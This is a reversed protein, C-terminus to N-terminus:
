HELYLHCGEVRHTKFEMGGKRTSFTKQLGRRFRSCPEHCEAHRQDTPMRDVDNFVWKKSKEKSRIPIARTISDRADITPLTSFRQSEIRRGLNNRRQIYQGHYEDKWLNPVDQHCSLANFVGFISLTDEKVLSFPNSEQM